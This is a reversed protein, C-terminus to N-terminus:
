PRSCYIISEESVKSVLCTHPYFKTLLKAWPYLKLIKFKCDLDMLTVNSYKFKYLVVLVFLCIIYVYYILQNILKLLQGAKQWESHLFIELFQIFISLTINSSLSLTHTHNQTKTHPNSMKYCVHM